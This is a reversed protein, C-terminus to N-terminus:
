DERDGNQQKWVDTEDLVDLAIEAASSGSANSEAHINVAFFYTNDSTETFGVFWGNVNQGDVQGTGTKGYLTGAPSASLRLNDKVARINEPAFDFTNRYLDTLLKVQEIPSIKLGSEMWYSDPSGSINENGYGIERIRSRIVDTGMQRDLEQFYWNASVSLASALTQDQNWSEFPYLTGDWALGSADPSIIGEELAFLADYIKYTSDPSVRVSAQEENYISWRNNNLDYLVFSGDYGDFYEAMDISFINQGSASWQYHEDGSAHSFLAPALGALLAATLSYVAINKMMKLASPKRYAAINLIRRRIQKTSGGLGASFPFVTHSLKEAFNILAFGYDQYNEKDLMRLVSADCAIERDGRIAAFATWVLPNFWYLIGALIMLYNVLNDKHRYHQLEHLLIYRIESPKCDSILHIPLYIILIGATWVGALVLGLISPTRSSVSIAFDNMWGAATDASAAGSATGAGGGGGSLVGRVDFPLRALFAAPHRSSVPLFPVALLALLLFWLNYQTRGTLTNRFLRKLGFLLIIIVGIFLNCILFHIIFDTM